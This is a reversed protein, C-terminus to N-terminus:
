FSWKIRALAITGINGFESFRNGASTYVTADFDWNQSVSVSISPGVIISKDSPNLVCFVRGSVLASFQYSVEQFVSYKSPSLEGNITSVQFNNLTSDTVGNSRFMFETHIYLSNEFTYDGSIVSSFNEKEIKSKESEDVTMPIYNRKSKYLFEGRFGGKMIEGSWGGGAVFRDLMWGGLLQVDYEYMNSKILGAATIDSRTKGPKFAFEIKSLDGTYWTVKLADVGPKEESDLSIASVPNFLDILNWVWSMGWSIRQRGAIIQYKDYTFDAYLRNFESEVLFNNEEIWKNQLNLFSNHSEFPNLGGFIKASNIGQQVSNRLEFGTTLNESVYWKFNLRNYALHVLKTDNGLSSNKLALPAYKFYGSLEYDSTQAFATIFIFFCCIPLLLKLKM